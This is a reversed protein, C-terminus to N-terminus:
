TRIPTIVEVEILNQKMTKDNIIFPSNNTNAKSCASISAYRRTTPSLPSFHGISTHGSVGTHLLFPTNQSSVCVMVANYTKKEKKQNTQKEGQKINRRKKTPTQMAIFQTANHRRLQTQKRRECKQLNKKRKILKNRVKSLTKEKKQLRKCLLSNLPATGDCSPKSEESM